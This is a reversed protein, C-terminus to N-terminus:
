AKPARQRRARAAAAWGARCTECRCRHYTYANETGHPVAVATSLVGGRGAGRRLNERRTVAELHDPNVCLKVRCLHDIDLGQLIPGVFIRYSVRHAGFYHGGVGVNGYGWKTRAGTWLWCTETIEVKDLFREIVRGEACPDRDGSREPELQFRLM